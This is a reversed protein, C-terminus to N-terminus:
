GGGRGGVEEVESRGGLLSLEKSLWNICKSAGLM